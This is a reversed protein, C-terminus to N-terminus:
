RPRGPRVRRERERPGKYFPLSLSVPVPKWRPYSGGFTGRLRARRTSRRGEVLKAAMRRQAQTRWSGGPTTHTARSLRSSSSPAHDPTIAGDARGPCSSSRAHSTSARSRAHLHAEGREAFASTTSRRARARARLRAGERVPAEAARARLPGRGRDGGVFRDRSLDLAERWGCTSSGARLRARAPDDSWICCALARRERLDLERLDPAVFRFDM